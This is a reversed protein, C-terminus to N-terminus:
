QAAHKRGERQRIAPMIYCASRQIVSAVQYAGRSRIGVQSGASQTFLNIRRVGIDDGKFVFCRAVKPRKLNQVFRLLPQLVDVGWEVGAFGPAPM